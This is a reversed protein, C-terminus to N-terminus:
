RKEPQRCGAAHPRLGQTAQGDLAFVHDDTYDIATHPGLADGVGVADTAGCRNKAAASQSIARGRCAPRASALRGFAKVGGNM